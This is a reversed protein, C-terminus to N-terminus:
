NASPCPCCHRTSPWSRTHKVLGGSLLCGTWVQSSFVLADVPLLTSVPSQKLGRHLFFICSPVHAQRFIPGHASGLILIKMSIAISWLFYFFILCFAGGIIVQNVVRESILGLLGVWPAGAWDSSAGPFVQRTWSNTGPGEAWDKFHQQFISTQYILM